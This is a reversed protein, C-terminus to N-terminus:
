NKKHSLKTALAKTRDSFQLRKDHDALTIIEDIKFEQKQIWDTNNMQFEYTELDSNLSLWSFSNQLWSAVSNEIESYKAEGQQISEEYEAVTKFDSQTQCIM